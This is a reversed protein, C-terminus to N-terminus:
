MRAGLEVGGGHFLREGIGPGGCLIYGEAATALVAAIEM